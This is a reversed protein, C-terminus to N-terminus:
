WSKMFTTATHGEVLRVFCVRVKSAVSSLTSGTFLPLIYPSLPVVVQHSSNERKFM